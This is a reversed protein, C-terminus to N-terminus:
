AGYVNEAMSGSLEELRATLTDQKSLVARNAKELEKRSKGSRDVVISETAQIQKKLAELAALTAKRNKALGKDSGSLSLVITAM